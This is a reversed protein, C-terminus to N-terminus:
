RPPQSAVQGPVPLVFRTRHTDCREAETHSSSYRKRPLTYTYSIMARGFGHVPSTSCEICRSLPWLSQMRRPSRPLGNCTTQPLYTLSWSRQIM